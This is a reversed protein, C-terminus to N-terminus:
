TRRGAGLRLTRWPQILAAVGFRTEMERTTTARRQDFNEAALLLAARRLDPPTAQWDAGFGADFVFELAASHARRGSFSSRSGLTEVTFASPDLVEGARSGSAQTVSILARVPAIPAETAGGAELRARWSFRRPILCLSLVAELHAVAAALAAEVDATQDAAFGSSLRMHRSLEDLMAATIEPKGTETLM